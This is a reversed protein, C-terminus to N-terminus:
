KPREMKCTTPLATAKGDVKADTRWGLGTGESDYKMNRELTSVYLPQLLQHNDARMEVEGLSTPMKLGELARAVKVPDNSQAKKAAAAFMEWMTKARWYAYENEKGPFRKSFAAVSGDLEPAANRHWESVQKLTDVGAEGVATVTGPSGGYYTEWEVKLGADKGAKILLVMDNSWNGTIVTDAGAAKIKAVYPSFDNVKQLPHLEDGVITVDPRKEGLMKRAAAAVAKGFSYDQNILYVRKVKADRAIVDTMAAMKMDADADFRFHWFTCKDNTLAPDIAAYNLYVVEKGPNRENHKQVADSIALAVASGNGQVIYRAGEDIARKLQILSEQPNVKNDYSLLELKEGNLGGAANIADIYFQHTKQALIGTSAAGGSLPDIFAIKVDAGASGALCAIAFGLGVASSTRVSM